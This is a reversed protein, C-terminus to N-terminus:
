GLLMRGLAAIATPAEQPSAGSRILVRLSIYLGLLAQATPAADIDSRITGVRQGEKVRERFFLEVHGLGDQVVDRIEADHPANEIATNVLFCGGPRGADPAMRVADFVAIIAERAPLDHALRDLFARKDNDSYHRLCAMFVGRKDKFAGYLRARNLGTAAILDNISTSKYGHAWFALTANELVLNSDSIRSQGM